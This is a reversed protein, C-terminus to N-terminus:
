RCVFSGDIINFNIDNLLQLGKFQDNPFEPIGSVGRSGQIKKAPRHCPSVYPKGLQGGCHSDDNGSVARLRHDKHKREIPFTRKSLGQKTTPKEGLCAVRTSFRPQLKTGYNKAFIYLPLSNAAKTVGFPVISNPPIFAKEGPRIGGVTIIPFFLGNM